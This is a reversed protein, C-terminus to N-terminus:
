KLRYLGIVPNDGEKTDIDFEKGAKKNILISSTSIIGVLMESSPDKGVIRGDIKKSAPLIAAYSSVNGTKTSYIVNHYLGHYAISMFISEKLIYFKSFDWILNKDKTISTLFSSFDGQFSREGKNIANIQEPSNDAIKVSCFPVMNNNTIRYITDNLMQKFYIDGQYIDLIQAQKYIADRLGLPIESISSQFALTDNVEKFIALQGKNKFPAYLNNRTFIYTGNFQKVAFGIEEQQKVIKDRMFVGELNYCHLVRKGLDFIEIQQTKANFLFDSIEVYEGPGKGLNAIKKIFKGNKRHFIFIAEQVKDLIIFFDETTEIKDVGSIISNPTTELPIYSVSSFIDDFPVETRIKSKELNIEPIVSINSATCGTILLCVAGILQVKYNLIDKM